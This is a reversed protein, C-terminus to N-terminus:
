FVWSLGLCQGMSTRSYSVTTLTTTAIEEGLAPAYYFLKAALAANDSFWYNIGFDLRMSTGRLETENTGDNYKVSSKLNYTFSTTFLRGRGFYGSFKLGMDTGNWTTATGPNFSSTYSGYAFSVFLDRKGIPIGISFDYAMLSNTTTTATKVSDSAYALNFDLVGARAGVSWM